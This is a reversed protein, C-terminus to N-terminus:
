EFSCDTVIDSAPDSRISSSVALPSVTTSLGDTGTSAPSTTSPVNM